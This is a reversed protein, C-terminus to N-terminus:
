GFEIRISPKGATSGFLVSYSGSFLTTSTELALKELKFLQNCARGLWSREVTGKTSLM